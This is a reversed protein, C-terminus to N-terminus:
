LPHCTGIIMHPTDASERATGVEKSQVSFYGLPYAYLFRNTNKNFMFQQLDRCALIGTENFDGCSMGYTEGFEKVVWVPPKEKMFNAASVDRDTPRTIVFKQQSSGSVANWKSNKHAFGAFKESVCLWGEAVASGSMAALLMMLIAKRMASGANMYASKELQCNDPVAVYNIASAEM